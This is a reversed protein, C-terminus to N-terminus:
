KKLGRIKNELGYDDHRSRVIKLVADIAQNWINSHMDMLHGVMRESWKENSKEQEVSLDTSRRRHNM